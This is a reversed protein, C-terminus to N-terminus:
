IRIVTIAETASARRIDEPDSTFVVVDDAGACRVVAGIHADAVTVGARTGIGAAINATATDLAHDAIRFRNIAAARPESRDWGAEARVATPVIAMAATGRRRRAVVGAVYAVVTRHKGHTVQALAQVAENDLVLLRM